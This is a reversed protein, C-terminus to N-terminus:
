QQEGKKIKIRRGSKSLRIGYDKLCVEYFKCRLVGFGGCCVLAGHLVVDNDTYHGAQCKM